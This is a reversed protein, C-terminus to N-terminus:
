WFVCVFIYIFIMIFFFHVFMVNKVKRAMAKKADMGGTTSDPRCCLWLSTYSFMSFQGVPSLPLLQSM